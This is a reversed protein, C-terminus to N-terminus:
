LTKVTTTTIIKSTMPIAQGMMEASGTGEVTLTKEKVIGTSTDVIAQGSLKSDMNVTVEMGQQEVVKNTNQTGTLTVTTETGNIEKITYTRFTKIGDANTSDDWKDGIKKGIPLLQFAETAGNSEDKNAGGINKMMDMMPNSEEKTGTAKNSNLVKAENSLEIEKTVNIQSGMAKGTPSELDEKKDSDFNMEQGMMNATTKMKKLTAAILYSSENKTKVELVNMLVADATMEMSQGMMDMSTVSKVSNDIQFKQGKSLLLKGNVQANSSLAIAFSGLLFFYRIPKQNM